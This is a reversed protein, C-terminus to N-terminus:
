ATEFMPDDRPPAPALATRQFTQALDLTFQRRGEDRFEHKAEETLARSRQRCCGPSVAPTVTPCGVLNLMAFLDHMQTTTRFVMWTGM